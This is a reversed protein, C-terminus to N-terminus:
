KGKSCEELLLVAKLKKFVNIKNSMKSVLKRFPYVMKIFIKVMPKYVLNLKSYVKRYALNKCLYQQITTEHLISREGDTVYQIGDKQLYKNTIEFFMGSSVQLRNYEHDFRAKSISAIKGFCLVKMFGVIVDPDDVLRAIYLQVSEGEVCSILGSKFVDFTRVHGERAIDVKEQMRYLQEIMSETFEVEEIIISNIGKRITCRKKSPFDELTMVNDRCIYWWNTEEDCDFNNVYTLMLSKESKLIVKAQKRTFEEDIYRMRTIHNYTEYTYRNM